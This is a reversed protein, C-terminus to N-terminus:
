AVGAGTNWGGAELRRLDEDVQGLIQFPEEVKVLREELGLAKRFKTMTSAHMSSVTTSGLDVPVKDPQKHNIAAQIRERSTM